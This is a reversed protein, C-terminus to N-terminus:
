SRDSKGLKRALRGPHTVSWLSVADALRDRDKGLAEAAEDRGRERDEREEYLAHRQKKPILLLEVETPSYLDHFYANVDEFKRRVEGPDPDEGNDQRAYHNTLARRAASFAENQPYWEENREDAERQGEEERVQRDLADLARFYPAERNRKLAKTASRFADANTIVAEVRDYFPLGRATIRVRTVATSYRAGLTRPQMGLDTAELLDALAEFTRNAHAARWTTGSTRLAAWSAVSATVTATVFATGVSAIISVDM